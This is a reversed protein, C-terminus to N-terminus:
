AEVSLRICNIDHFSRESKGVSQIIGKADNGPVRCAQKPSLKDCIMYTKREKKLNTFMRFDLTCDKYNYHKWM